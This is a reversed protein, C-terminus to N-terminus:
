KSEILYKWASHNHLKKGTAKGNQSKNTKVVGATAKDIAKFLANLWLVPRVGEGAGWLKGWKEVEM